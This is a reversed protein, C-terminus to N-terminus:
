QTAALKHESNSNQVIDANLAALVHEPDNKIAMLLAAAAGSRERRGQEWNRLTSTAVHIVAAFKAQSLGVSKRIARVANPEVEFVRSPSLKGKIIADAQELSETLKEFLQTEM